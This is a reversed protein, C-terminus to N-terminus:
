LAGDEKVLETKVPALTEKDTLIVERDIVSYWFSAVSELSAHVQDILGETMPAKRLDVQSYDYHLLDYMM